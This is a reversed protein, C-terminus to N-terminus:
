IPGRPAGTARITGGSQSLDVFVIIDHKTPVFGQTRSLSLHYSFEMSRLILRLCKRKPPIAEKVASIPSHFDFLLARHGERGEESHRSGRWEVGHCWEGSM